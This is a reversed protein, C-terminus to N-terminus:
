CGADRGVTIGVRKAMVPKRLPKYVGPIRSVADDCSIVGDTYDVLPQWFVILELAYGVVDKTERGRFLWKQGRKHLRACLNCM